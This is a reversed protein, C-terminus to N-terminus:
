AKKQDRKKVPSTKKETTQKGKPKIPSAAKKKSSDKAFSLSDFEIIKDEVELIELKPNM